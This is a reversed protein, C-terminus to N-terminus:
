FFDSTWPVPGAFLKGLLELAPHSADVLGVAAAQRPTM